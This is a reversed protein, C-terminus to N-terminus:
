NSPRTPAPPAKEAAGAGSEGTAASGPEYRARWAKELTARYRKVSQLGHISYRLNIVIFPGGTAGLAIARQRDADVRARYRGDALAARVSAADLGIERGLEVLSAAEFINRRDRFYARYMRRWGLDELGAESAMALLEHALHTNGAVNDALVFPTLGEQAGVEEIHRFAATLQEDHLGTKEAFVDRVPRLGPPSAPDIEYSRQVLEFQESFVELAKELRRLSIWCWPCTIDSWFEIKM